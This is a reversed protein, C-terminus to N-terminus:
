AVGTVRLNKEEAIKHEGYYVVIDVAQGNKINDANPLTVSVTESPSITGSLTNKPMEYEYPTTAGSKYYQSIKISVKSLDLVDGHLSSLTLVRDEKKVDKTGFTLYKERAAVAETSDDGYPVWTKKLDGTGYYKAFVVGDVTYIYCVGNYNEGLVEDYENKVMTRGIEGNSWAPNLAAGDYMAVSEYRSDSLGDIELVTTPMPEVDVGVGGAFVAVVAAIVITVVLLLMVGIVPSVADEFKKQIM